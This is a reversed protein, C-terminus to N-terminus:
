KEDKEPNEIKESAPGWEVGFGKAAPLAQLQPTPCHNEGPEAAPHFYYEHFQFEPPFSLSM